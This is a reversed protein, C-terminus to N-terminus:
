WAIAGLEDTATDDDLVDTAPVDDLVATLTGPDEDLGWGALGEIGDVVPNDEAENFEIEDVPDLEIAALPEVDECTGETTVEAAVELRTAEPAVEEKTEVELLTAVALLLVTEEADAELRVGDLLTVDEWAESGFVATNAVLLVEDAMVPGLEIAALPEVDECTEETTVEAVVELRMAAFVVDDRAEEELLTTGALLLVTEEVETELRAAIVEAVVELKAGRLVVDERAGDELVTAVALLLVIEEANADLGVADLLAVLEGAGSGFVATNATLLVIEVVVLETGEIDFVVEITADDEVESVTSRVLLLGVEEVGLEVRTTELVVEGKVVDEPVATVDLLLETAEVVLETGAAGSFVVDMSPDEEFVITRVLLLTSMEVVLGVRATDLVVEDTTEEESAAISALLLVTDGVVLAMREVVMEDEAEAIALLLVTDEMDLKTSAAYLEVDTRGVDEVRAATDLLLEDVNPALAPDLVAVDILVSLLAADDTDLELMTTIALEEDEATVATGDFVLMEDWSDLVNRSEFLLTVALWVNVLVAVEEADTPATTLLM